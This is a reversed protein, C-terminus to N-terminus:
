FQKWQQTVSRVKMNGQRWGTRRKHKCIASLGSCQAWLPGHQCFPSKVTNQSDLALNQSVDWIFAIRAPAKHLCSYCAVCWKELYEPLGQSQLPKKEEFSPLHIKRWNQFLYMLIYKINLYKIANLPAHKHSSKLLAIFISEAFGFMVSMTEKCRSHITRHGTVCPVGTHFPDQQHCWFKVKIHLGALGCKELTEVM